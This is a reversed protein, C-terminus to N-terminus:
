SVMEVEWRGENEADLNTVNLFTNVINGIDEAGMQKGSMGEVVINENGCAIGETAALCFSLQAAGTNKLRLQTGAAFSREVITVTANPNIAGSWARQGKRKHARIIRQDFFVNVMEPKGVYEAALLLVNITLQRELVDRSKSSINKDSSVAAKADLQEGVVMAYDAYLQEFKQLFPLGLETQYETIFSILRQMLIHVNMKTAITYETLGHPFFKNYTPTGKTFKARILGEDNRVAKKFNALIINAKMTKGRKDAIKVDEKVMAGFYADYASQTASILAAYKGSENNTILRSIHVETFINM